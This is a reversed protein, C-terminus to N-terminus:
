AWVFRLQGLSQEIEQIWTEGKSCFTLGPWPDIPVYGGALEPPLGDMLGQLGAIEARQHQGRVEEGASEDGAGLQAVEDLGM